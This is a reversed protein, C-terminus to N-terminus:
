VEIASLADTLFRNPQTGPHNVRRVAIVAGARDSWFVLVGDPRRPEIVHPETGEHHILAVPDESGVQVVVGDSTTHFRKVISDRLTGPPRSRAPGAPPLVYVGVNRQAQQKVLEGQQLMWRVLDGNGEAIYRRVAPGDVVFRVTTAM